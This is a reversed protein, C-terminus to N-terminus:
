TVESTIKSRTFLCVLFYCELAEWSGKFIYQQEIARKRRQEKPGEIIPRYLEIRDGDSLKRSLECLEGYVGISFDEFKVGSFISDKEALAIASAVDANEELSLSVNLSKGPLAM